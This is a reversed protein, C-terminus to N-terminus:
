PSPNLHSAHAFSPQCQHRATHNNQRIGSWKTLEWSLWTYTYIFGIERKSFKDLQLQFAWSSKSFVAKANKLTCHSCKAPLISLNTVKKHPIKEPNHVGFIILIPKNKTWTRTIWSIIYPAHKPDRRINPIRKGNAGWNIGTVGATSIGAHVLQLFRWKNVDSLGICECTYTVRLKLPGPLATPRNHTQTDPRYSDFSIIRSSYSM